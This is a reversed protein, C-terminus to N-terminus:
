HLSGLIALVNCTMAAFGLPFLYRPRAKVVEAVTRTPRLRAELSDGYMSFAMGIQVGLVLILIYIM